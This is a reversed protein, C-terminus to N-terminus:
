FFHTTIKETVYKKRCKDCHFTQKECITGNACTHESSLSQSIKTRPLLIIRVQFIRFVKQRDIKRGRGVGERWGERRGGGKM